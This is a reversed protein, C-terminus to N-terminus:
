EGAAGVPAAGAFPTGAVEWFTLRLCLFAFTSCSDTSVFFHEVEVEPRSQLALALPSASVCLGSTLIGAGRNVVELPAGARDFGVNANAIGPAARIPTGFKKM